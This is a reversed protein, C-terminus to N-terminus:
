HYIKGHTLLRHRASIPQSQHTVSSSKLSIFEGKWFRGFILSLELEFILSIQSFKKESSTSFHVLVRLVTPNIAWKIFIHLFNESIETIYKIISIYLNQFFCHLGSDGQGYLTARVEVCWKWVLGDSRCLEIVVLPIRWKSVDSWCLDTVHRISPNTILHRTSTVSEHM